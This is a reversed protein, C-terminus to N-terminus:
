SSAFQAAVLSSVAGWWAATAIGSGVLLVFRADPYRGSGSAVALPMFIRSPTTPSRRRGGRTSACSRVVHVHDTRHDNIIRHVFAPDPDEAFSAPVHEFGQQSMASLAAQVLIAIVDPVGVAIDITDKSSLGPVSTPGIHEILADPFVLRLERKTAKFRRAWDKDYPLIEVETHARGV